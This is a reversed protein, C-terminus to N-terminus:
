IHLQHTPRKPPFHLEIKTPHALRVCRPVTIHSLFSLESAWNEWKTVLEKPLDDDWNVGARWIGRMLIKARVVFPALFQLPDYVAAIASLVNRKTPPRTPREAKFTSVDRETEWIIGLTKTQSSGQKDFAVTALGDDEPISCYRLAPEVVM